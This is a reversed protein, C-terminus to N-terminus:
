ALRSRRPRDAVEGVGAVEVRRDVDARDDDLVAEGVHLGAAARDGVGLWRVLERLGLGLRPRHQARDLEGRAVPSAM